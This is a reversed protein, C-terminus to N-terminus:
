RLSLRLQHDCAQWPPPSTTRARERVPTEPKGSTGTLSCKSNEIKNRNGVADDGRLFFPKNITYEHNNQKKAAFTRVFMGNVLFTDGHPCM